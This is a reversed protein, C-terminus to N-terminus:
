EAVLDPTAFTAVAHPGYEVPHSGRRVGPLAACL